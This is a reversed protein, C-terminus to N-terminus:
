ATRRAVGRVENVIETLRACAKLAAQLTPDAAIQGPQEMQLRFSLPTIANLIRDECFAQVRRIDQQGLKTLDQDPLEM